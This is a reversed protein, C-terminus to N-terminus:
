TQAPLISSYAGSIVVTGGTAALFLKLQGPVKRNELSEQIEVALDGFAHTTTRSIWDGSSGKGLPRWDKHTGLSFDASNGIVGIDIVAM